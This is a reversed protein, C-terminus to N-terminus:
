SEEPSAAGGLARALDAEASALEAELELARLRAEGERRVADVVVLYSDSGNEFARRAGRSAEALSDLVSVYASLSTRARETAARSIAVEAAITLRLAAYLHGAQLIAADARGIGGQNQYFIPVEIQAGVSFNPNLEGRAAQGDLTAVMSIVRSREWRRRAAAAHIALEAARLDPRARYARARLAEESPLERPETAMTTLQPLKAVPLNLVALLRADAIEIERRGRQVLDNALVAEAEVGSAEVPAIEGSSVRSKALESSERWSSAIQELTAIRARALRANAHVVRVNREADLVIQVLAEAVRELELRAAETRLPVQWIAEIPWSLILALQRPDIPALASVRPNPLRRAEEFDALAVDLRVLEAHLTPSRWLAIAVAEDPDIGDDIVCHPPLSKEDSPTRPGLRKQTSALTASELWSRDRSAGGCATAVSLLVTMLLLTQTRM